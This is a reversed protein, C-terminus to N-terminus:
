RRTPRRPWRLRPTTAQATRARRTAHLPVVRVVQGGLWEGSLEVSQIYNGCPHGAFPQVSANLELKAPLRPDRPARVLVYSGPMNVDFKEGGLNVVHPDDTAGGADTPAPTPVVQVSPGDITDCIEEILMSSFNHASVGMFQVEKLQHPDSPDAYCGRWPDTPKHTSDYLMSTLVGNDLHGLILSINAARIDQMLQCQSADTDYPTRMSDRDKSIVMLIKVASPDWPNNHLMQGMAGANDEPSDGGGMSYFPAIENQLQVPDEFWHSLPDPHVAWEYRPPTVDGEDRYCLFAMQLLSVSANFEVALDYVTTKLADLYPQTSGTCDMAFGIQLWPITENLCTENSTDNSSNLSTEFIKTRSLPQRKSMASMMESRLAAEERGAAVARGSAGAGQLALASVQTHFACFALFSTISQM